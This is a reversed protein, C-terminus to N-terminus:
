LEGEDDDDLLFPSECMARAVLEERMRTYEM